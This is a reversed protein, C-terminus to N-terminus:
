GQNSQIPYETIMLHDVLLM